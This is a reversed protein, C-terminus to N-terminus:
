VKAIYKLTFHLLIFVQLDSKRKQVFSSNPDVDSIWTSSKPFVAAKNSELLPYLAILDNYYSTMERYRKWVIHTEEDNSRTVKISYSLFSSKLLSSSEYQKEVDILTVHFNDEYSAAIQTHASPLNSPTKKKKKKEKQQKKSTSLENDDTWTNYAASPQLLVPDDIGTLSLIKENSDVIQAFM